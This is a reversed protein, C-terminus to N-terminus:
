SSDHLSRFVVETAMFPSDRTSVLPLLLKRGDVITGPSSRTMEWKRQNMYPHGETAVGSQFESVPAAM